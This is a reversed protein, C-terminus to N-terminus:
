TLQTQCIKQAISPCLLVADVVHDHVFSLLELKKSRNKNYLSDDVVFVKREEKSTLPALFTIAKIAIRYLFARWNHFSSNLFRYVTDQSFSPIDKGSDIWRWFNRQRFVLVFLTCFIDISAVGQTKNKCYRALAERLSVTKMFAFFEPISQVHDNEQNLIM